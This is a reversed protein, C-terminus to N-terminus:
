ETEAEDGWRWPEAPAAPKARARKRERGKYKVREVPRVDPAPVLLDLREVVGLATMVRILTDLSIGEGNELRTITRRSVGAERALQTQNINQALRLKELKSGLEAEIQAPTALTYEINQAMNQENFEM